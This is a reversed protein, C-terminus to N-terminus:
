RVKDRAQFGGSSMKCRSGSPMLLPCELPTYTVYGPQTEVLDVGVVQSQHSRRSEIFFHMKSESTSESVAQISNLLQGTHTDMRARHRLSVYRAIDITWIGSGTGLDLVRYVQSHDITPVLLAAEISGLNCQAPSPLIHLVHRYILM